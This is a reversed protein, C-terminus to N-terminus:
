PKDLFLKGNKHGARRSRPVPDSPTTGIPVSPTANWLTGSRIGARGRPDLGLDMRLGQRVVPHDDTVLVRVAM